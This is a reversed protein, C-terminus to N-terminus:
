FRMGQYHQSEDGDDDYLLMDGMQAHTDSGYSPAVEHWGDFNLSQGAALAEKLESILKDVKIKVEDSTDNFCPVENHYEDYEIGAEICPFAEKYEWRSGNPAEAIIKVM